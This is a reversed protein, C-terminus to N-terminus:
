FNLDTHMALLRQYDKWKLMEIVEFAVRSGDLTTAVAVGAMQYREADKDMFRAVDKTEKAILERVVAIKGSTPLTTKKIKNGNDYVKTYIKMEADAEDAFFFGDADTTTPYALVPAHDVIKTETSNEM